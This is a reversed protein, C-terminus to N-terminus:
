RLAAREAESLVRPAKLPAGSRADFFPSRKHDGRLRWSIVLAFIRLLMTWRSQSDPPIAAVDGIAFKRFVRARIPGLADGAPERIFTRIVGVFPVGM